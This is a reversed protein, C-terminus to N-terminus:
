APAPQPAHAGACLREARLLGQGGRGLQPVRELTVYQFIRESETLEPLPRWLSGPLVLLGHVAVVSCPASGASEM